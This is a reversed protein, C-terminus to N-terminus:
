GLAELFLARTRRAADEWTFLSAREPGRRRAEARFADDDNAKEIAAAIAAADLPDPLLGADGVVEPLSSSSSAVVPIGEAMAELAPLGFGEYLSPYALLRAGRLLAAAREPSVWGLRAIRAAHRSRSLREAFGPM